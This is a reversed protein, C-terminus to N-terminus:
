AVTVRVFIVLSLTPPFMENVQLKIPEKLSAISVFKSLVAWFFREVTYYIIITVGDDFLGIHFLSFVSSLLNQMLNLPCKAFSLYQLNQISNTLSSETLRAFKLCEFNFFDPEEPGVFPACLM